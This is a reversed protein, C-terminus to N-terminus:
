VEARHKGPKEDSQPTAKTAAISLAVAVVLNLLKDAQELLQDSQTDTIWGFGTAVVLLLALAAYLFRRLFYPKKLNALM